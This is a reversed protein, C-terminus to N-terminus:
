RSYLEDTKENWGMSERDNDVISRFLTNWLVRQHMFSQGSGFQKMLEKHLQVCEGRGEEHVPMSVTRIRGIPPTSIVKDTLSQSRHPTYNFDSTKVGESETQELNSAEKVVTSPSSDDQAVTSVASLSRGRSGISICLALRLVLFLSFIHSDKDGLFEREIQHILLRLLECIGRYM